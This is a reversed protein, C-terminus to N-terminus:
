WRGHRSRQGCGGTTVLDGATSFSTTTTDIDINGGDEDAGGTTDIAVGGTGTGLTIAGATTQTNGRVM